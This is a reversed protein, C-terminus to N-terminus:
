TQDRNEEVYERILRNLVTSMQKEQKKTISVFEDYLSQTVRVAIRKDKTEEARGAAEELRQREALPLLDKASKAM